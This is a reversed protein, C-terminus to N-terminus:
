EGFYINKLEFLMNYESLSLNNNKVIKWCINVYNQMSEFAASLKFNNVANNFLNIQVALDQRISENNKDKNTQLIKKLKLYIKLLDRTQLQLKSPDIVKDQNINHKLFYARLIKNNIGKFLEKQSGDDKQWKLKKGDPGLLLGHSVIKTPCDNNNLYCLSYYDFKKIVDGHIWVRKTYKHSCLIAPLMIAAFRPDLNFGNYEITYARNKELILDYTEPLSFVFTKLKQRICNPFFAITAMKREITKRNIKKFLSTKTQSILPRNCKKCSCITPDSGYINGCSSCEIINTQGVTISDKYTTKFLRVLNKKIKDDRVIYDFSLYHNKLDKKIQKIALLIYKKINDKTPAKNEFTIQKILPEGNINLLFPAFVKIGALRRAKAYFDAITLDYINGVSLGKKIQTPAIIIIESDM